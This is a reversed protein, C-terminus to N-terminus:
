AAGKEKSKKPGRAMAIVEKMKIRSGTHLILAEYVKSVFLFMLMVSLLLVVIAIAAILPSAKGVLLAGPLLFASSLPCILAFTVFANDGAAMLSGAAGIGIYAGVLTTITFLSLSDNAEELRSATAGCLGALTAYLVLGAGATILGLIINFFNLNALIEPTLYQTIANSGTGSIAEGVKTSIFGGVLLVGWNLMVSVLVALVKGVIVALPRISTLLYEIVRSSKEQVIATAIQSGSMTSIMMVVFLVGYLFWYESNTISTDELVVASETDVITASTVVSTSFYELQAETVDYLKVKAKTLASQVYQGLEQLELMTVNGDPSRLFQLYCTSADEALVLVVSQPEEECLIQELNEMTEATEEFVIHSYGEPLEAAIDLNRYLTANYLYVKEIESQEPASTADNLLFTNMLPMSVLVMILMIIMSVRYSKSKLTQVLTFTFVDKWGRINDAKM